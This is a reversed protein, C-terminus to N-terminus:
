SFPTKAMASSFSVTAPFSRHCWFGVNGMNHGRDNGAVTENEDAIALLGKEQAVSAACLPDIKDDLPNELLFIRCRTLLARSPRDIALTPTARLAISSASQCWM